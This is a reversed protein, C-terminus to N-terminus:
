LAPEKSAGIGGRVRAPAGEATSVMVDGGFVDM